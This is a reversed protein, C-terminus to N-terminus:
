YPTARTGGDELVVEIPASAQSLDAEFEVTEGFTTKIKYRAM